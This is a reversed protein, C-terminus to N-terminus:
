PNGEVGLGLVALLIHLHSHVRAHFFARGLNHQGGLVAGEGARQCDNLGALLVGAIDVDVPLLVGEVAVVGLRAHGHNGELVFNGHHAFVVDHHHGVLQAGQHNADDLFYRNCALSGGQLCRLAVHAVQETVM